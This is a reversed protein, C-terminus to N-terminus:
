QGGSPDKMYEIMYNETVDKVTIRLVSSDTVTGKQDSIYGVSVTYSGIFNLGGIFDDQSMEGPIRIIKNAYDIEYSESTVAFGRIYLEAFQVWKNLMSNDYFHYRLVEVPGININDQTEDSTTNNSRDKVEIFEDSGALKVSVSYFYVKNLTYWWNDLRNIYVPVSFHMDLTLNLDENLISWYTRDNNDFINALVNEKYGEPTGDEFYILDRVSGNEGETVKVFKLDEIDPRATPIETPEPTPTPSDTPVFETPTIAPTATPTVPVATETPAIEETATQEDTVVPAASFTSDSRADDPGVTCGYLIFISLILLFATLILKKM